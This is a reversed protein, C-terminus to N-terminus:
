LPSGVVGAVLADDQMRLEVSRVAGVSDAAPAAVARDDELLVLRADRHARALEAVGERGVAEALGRGLVVVDPATDAAAAIAEALTAATGVLRIASRAALRRQLQAAAEDGAAAVLVRVPTQADAAAPDPLWLVFRAGDPWPEAQLTGGLSEALARSDALGHGLGDAEGPLLRVGRDFVRELSPVPIGHGNDTVVLEVGAGRVRSTISIRPAVGPRAYKVSNAVLNLVVQRVSAAHTHVHGRLLNTAVTAGAEDLTLDLVGVVDAVLEHLRVDTWGPDRAAAAAFTDDLQQVARRAAGALREHMTTLMEADLQRGHELLTSAYAAVATVPQKLDHSVRRGFQELSENTRQLSATRDREPTLDVFQVQVVDYRPEGLDVRLAICRVWRETGDHLALAFETHLEATTGDRVAALRARLAADDPLLDDVPRGVLASTSTGLLAAMAENARLVRGDRTHVTLSPTASRLFFSRFETAIARRRDGDAALLLGLSGIVWWSVLATTSATAAALADTAALTVTVALLMALNALAYASTGALMALALVPVVMLQAADSANEDVFLVVALVALTSVFVAGSAAPLRSRDLLRAHGTVLMRLGPTVGLVGIGAAATCHLLTGPGLDIGLAGGVWRWVAEVGLPIAAAAVVSFEVMVIPRRLPGHQAFRAELLRVGGVVVATQCAATALLAAGLPAGGVLLGHVVLGYWAVPAGRPGVSLLHAVLVGLTLTVVPAGDGLGLRAGLLAALPLAVLTAATITGRARRSTSRGM